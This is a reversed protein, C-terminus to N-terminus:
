NTGSVALSPTYVSTCVCTCIQPPFPTTNSLVEEIKIIEAEGVAAVFDIHTVIDSMWALSASICM